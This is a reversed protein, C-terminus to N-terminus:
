KKTGITGNISVSRTITFNIYEVTEYAGGNIWPLNGTIVELTYVGNGWINIVEELDVSRMKIGQPVSNQPVDFGLGALNIESVSIPMGVTGAVYPGKYMQTYTNSEPYLDTYNVLIDRVDGYFTQNIDWPDIQGGANRIQSFTASAMPWIIVTARGV